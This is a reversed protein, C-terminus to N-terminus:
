KHIIFGIFWVISFVPLFFGLFAYTFTKIMYRYKIEHLEVNSKRFKTQRSVVENFNEEAFKTIKYAYKVSLYAPYILILTGIIGIFEFYGRGEAYTSLAVFTFILILLAPATIVKQINAVLWCKDHFSLKIM